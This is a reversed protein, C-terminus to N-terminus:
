AHLEGVPCISHIKCPANKGELLVINEFAGLSLIDMIHRRKTLEELSGAHATAILQVGANMCCEVAQADRRDGIEDCVIIDPAMSRIALMMGEAKQWGDLVDANGVDNQPVGCVCAALEGRSDVVTIKHDPMQRVIDKLLTTKGSAPAGVLLTGGMKGNLRRILENASGKIQRAIRLNISSINRMNSVEGRSYVATGCLGARHGGQITVFGQRIEEAHSHVSYGCLSRFCEFLETHTMKHDIFFDEQGTVICIPRGARLRIERTSRKVAYPIESFRESTEAPLGSIAQEFEHM